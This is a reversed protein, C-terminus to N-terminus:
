RQLDTRLKNHWGEGCTVRGFLMAGYGVLELVPLHERTGIVQNAVWLCVFLNWRRLWYETSKMGAIEALRLKLGICVIFQSHLEM